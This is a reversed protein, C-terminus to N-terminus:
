VKGLLVNADNASGALGQIICGRSHLLKPNLKGHPISQIGFRERRGVRGVIRVVRGIKMRGSKQDIRLAFHVDGNVATARDSSERGIIREMNKPIPQLVVLHCNKREGILM